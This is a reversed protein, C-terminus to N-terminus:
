ASGGVRDSAIFGLRCLAWWGECRGDLEGVGERERCSARGIEEDPADGMAVSHGVVSFMAIDIPMDGFAIAREPAVSIMELARLLDSSCVDSSWDGTWKTHRRRGSFVVSDM